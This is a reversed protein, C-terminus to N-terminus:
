DGSSVSHASVTHRAIREEDLVLGFGPRDPVRVCGQRDIALPEALMQDRAGATWGSPPDDPFELFPCNPIAAALHLNAMLGIGNGWTHPAVEVGSVEALAAIKRMEGVGESLLADPQLIDYCGRDILLKFEHLGHNDEGGAIALTDLKDRLRRLGDYDHRPLPEELWRVKMRELERAVTLAMPFGWTRHGGHGPEVGAQNADVMIEIRDGVAARVAEVVKLDERPDSLHFRFKVAKYGQALMRHVDDVRQEPSRVEATACYAVVRDSYGGWLKAVPLGALKGVIDWLTMEMCYVPAGLIEADRLVPVLREVYTPDQGIFYPAVFREIAVAAEIGAHAAGIGTVGEDTQVEILVMLLNPQNRGRAWAPHFDRALPFDVVRWTIREIKL